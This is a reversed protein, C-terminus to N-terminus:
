FSSKVIWIEVQGVSYTRQHLFEGSSIDGLDVLIKDLVKHKMILPQHPEPVIRSYAPYDLYLSARTLGLDFDVEDNLLHVILLDHKLDDGSEVGDKCRKM